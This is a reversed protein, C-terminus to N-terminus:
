RGGAPKLRPGQATDEIVFGMDLVRTRAADAEAFKKAARLAQRERALEMAKAEVAAASPAAPAM